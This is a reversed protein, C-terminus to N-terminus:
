QPRTRRPWRRQTAAPAKAPAAMPAATAPAPAEVPAAKMGLQTRIEDAAPPRYTIQQGDATTVVIKGSAANVASAVKLTQGQVRVTKM